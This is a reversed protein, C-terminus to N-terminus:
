QNVKTANPDAWPRKLLTRYYQNDFV